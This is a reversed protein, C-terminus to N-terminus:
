DIGSSGLSRSGFSGALSNRWPQPILVEAGQQRRASTSHPAAFFGHIYWHHIPSQILNHKKRHKVWNQNQKFNVQHMLSKPHIPQSPVVTVAGGQGNPVHQNSNPHFWWIRNDFWMNLSNKINGTQWNAGTTTVCCCGIRMLDPIWEFTTLCTALDETWSAAATDEAHNALSSTSTEQFLPVGLDGMKTSKEM